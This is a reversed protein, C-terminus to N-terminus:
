KISSLESFFIRRERDYHPGYINSLLWEFGTCKYILYITLSYTVKKILNGKYDKHDWWILLGSSSVIADKALWGDLCAGCISKQLRDNM